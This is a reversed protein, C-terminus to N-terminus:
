RAEVTFNAPDSRHSGMEYVVSWRGFQPTEGKLTHPYRSGYAGPLEWGDIPMPKSDVRTTGDPRTFIIRQKYLLAAPIARREGSGLETVLWVLIQEGRSFRTKELEIAVSFETEPPLPVHGSIEPLPGSSQPARVQTSFGSVLAALAIAILGQRVM